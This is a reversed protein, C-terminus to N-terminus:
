RFRELGEEEIILSRGSQLYKMIVAEDEEEVRTHGQAANEM